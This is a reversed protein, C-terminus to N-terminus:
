RRTAVSTMRIGIINDGDDAVIEGYGIIEGNVQLEIPEGFHKDLRFQEGQRAAMLDAVSIKVKGLVAQIEVPIDNIRPASRSAGLVSGRAPSSFPQGFGADNSM